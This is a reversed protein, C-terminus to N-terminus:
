ASNSALPRSQDFSLHELTFYFTAGHPPSSDAWIKGGHCEIITKVTALGVGRGETNLDHNAAGRRFVQFISDHDKASIGRGTDRVYLVIQRDQQKAGVHIRRECADAPMYKVANDFLNQYVQRIRNKNAHVSPLPSDIEIRIGKQELDFSMSQSVSEVLETLHIQQKKGPHTRIRSLEMLDDLLENETNVNAAIRQLKSLVDEDMKESHKLIILKTLGQINRLPAGLDHGVARIFENKEEIEQQLKNNAAALAKTREDVLQELHENTKLMANQILTLNEGMDNFSNALMGIEDNRQNPLPRFKGGTGLNMMGALVNRLPKIWGRVWFIALPLAILCIVFVISITAGRMSNIFAYHNRDILAFQLTGVHQVDTGTNSFDSKILPQHQVHLPDHGLSIQWVQHLSADAQGSSSRLHKQFVQYAAPENYQEAITNGDADLVVIFAIRQDALLKKIAVGLQKEAQTQLYTQVLHRTANALLDVDREFTQQNNRHASFSILYGTVATSTTILLAVVLIARLQLSQTRSPLSRPHPM